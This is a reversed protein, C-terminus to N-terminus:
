STFFNFRRRPLAEPLKDSLRDGDINADTPLWIDILLSEKEGKPLGRPFVEVSHDIPNLDNESLFKEITSYAEDIRAYSGHYSMYAYEAVPFRHYVLNRSTENERM